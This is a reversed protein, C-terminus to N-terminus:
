NGLTEQYRTFAAMVAEVPSEQDVLWTTMAERDEAAGLVVDQATSVMDAIADLDAGTLDSLDLDMTVTGDEAAQRFKDPVSVALKAMDAQARLRDAPLMRRTDKFAPLTSLDVGDQSDFQPAVSALAPTEDKATEPTPTDEVRPNAAYFQAAYEEPTLPTDTQHTDAM